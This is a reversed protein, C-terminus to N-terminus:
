ANIEFAELWLDDFVEEMKRFNYPYANDGRFIVGRRGDNFSLNLEWQTGDLVAIGYRHTDYNRRWSGLNLSRVNGIFAEAFDEAVVEQIEDQTPLRKSGLHLDENVIKVTKIYGPSSFGGICFSVEQLYQLRENFAIVKEEMKSPIYPKGTEALARKAVELYELTCALQVDEGPCIVDERFPYEPHELIKKLRGIEQKLGRIHTLIMEQSKGKLREEYYFEPSEMM